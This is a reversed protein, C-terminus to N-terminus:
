YEYGSWHDNPSFIALWDVDAGGISKRLVEDRQVSKPQVSHQLERSHPHTILHNDLIRTTTVRHASPGWTYLPPSSRWSSRLNRLEPWELVDTTRSFLERHQGISEREEGEDGADKGGSRRWSDAAGYYGILTVSGYVEPRDTAGDSGLLGDCFVAGVAFDEVAIGRGAADRQLERVGLTADELGVDALGDECVVEIIEVLDPVVHTIEESIPKCPARHRNLRAIRITLTNTPISPLRPSPAMHLSALRRRIQLQRKASIM